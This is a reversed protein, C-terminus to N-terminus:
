ISSTMFKAAKGLYAEIVQPNNAINQPTDEALKEGFNLVTIKDAVAMVVEIQHEILIITLKENTEPNTQQNLKKILLALEHSEKQNLGAAPEDLLLIKPSTALARAIELRRKDGYSLSSAMKLAQEKLGVLELLTEVKESQHDTFTHFLARFVVNSRSAHHAGLMGALINEKVTLGNFLRINQFTRAIGFHSFVEPSILHGKFRSYVTFGSLLSILLSPLWFLVGLQSYNEELIDSLPKAQREVILGNWLSQANFFILSLLGVFFSAFIVKLIIKISFSQKIDHSDLLIEGRSAPYFGSILNLVSTKGAGNPGIIAHIKGSEIELSLGKVATVGGFKLHLNKLTIKAM